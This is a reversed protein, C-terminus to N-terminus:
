FQPEFGRHRLGERVKHVVIARESVRRFDFAHGYFEFSIMGTRGDILTNIVRGRRALGTTTLDAQDWDIPEGTVGTYPPEYGGSTRDFARLDLAAGVVLALLAVAGFLALARVLLKM